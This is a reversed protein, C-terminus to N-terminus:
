GRLTFYFAAGRGPEGEAWVQGGHRQVIRKVSALGIGTGTFDSASHLRQFLGFLRDASRMDFGAGNDRVVFVRRGDQVEAAFSIRARPVRASYKWANGLLNELVLRLLTPDGVVQLGPQIEIDAARDPAGRRLDDVVFGALQSVNVPQRALPQSALRALALLADIMQNMRAAAGLVRDLHDNGVRDLLRGYDEKVIRTFGDVVRIPARLDHSLTYGFSESESREDPSGGSAPEDAPRTLLLLRQTGDASAALRLRWGANDGTTGPQATGAAAADIAERLPDPLRPLLSNWSPLPAGAEGGLLRLAEPNAHLLQWGGPGDETALLVPGPQDCVLRQLAQTQRRAADDTETQRATGTHGAFRGQDDTRPSARLTWAAGSGIAKVRLDTMTAQSELRARLGAASSAGALEFCDWLAEGATPAQGWADSSAGAPPHMHLLRHQADTQWTWVDLLQQLTQRDRQSARLSAALRSEGRLRGFVTGAIAALVV